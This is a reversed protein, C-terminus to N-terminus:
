QWRRRYAYSLFHFSVFILPSLLYIFHTFPKERNRCHPFLYNIAIANSKVVYRDANKKVTTRTFRLIVSCMCESKTKIYKAQGSSDITILCVRPCANVVPWHLHSWPAAVDSAACFDCFPFKTKVSVFIHRRGDKWCPWRWVCCYNIRM